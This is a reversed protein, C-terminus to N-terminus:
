KALHKYVSTKNNAHDLIFDLYEPWPVDVTISNHDGDAVEDYMVPTGQDRLANVMNFSHSIPLTQDLKGHRIVIPMTLSSAHMISSRYDYEDPVDEPKGGYSRIISKLLHKYILEKRSKMDRYLERMDTAPCLAAVGDIIDSHHSAFILASTGGMSAGTLIIQPPNFRSRLDTLLGELDAEVSAKMWSDGRYEPSVYIGNRIIVEDRLDSFCWGKNECFAQKARSLGAHLYIVLPGTAGDKPYEILYKDEVGDIRSTYIEEKLITEAL